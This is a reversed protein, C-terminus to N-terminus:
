KRVHTFLKTEKPLISSEDWSKTQLATLQEALSWTQMNWPALKDPNVLADQWAQQWSAVAVVRDEVVGQDDGLYVELVTESQM